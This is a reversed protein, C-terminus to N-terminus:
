IVLLADLGPLDDPVLFPVPLYNDLCISRTYYETSITRLTKNECSEVIIVPRIEVISNEVITPCAPAVFIGEWHSQFRGSLGIM